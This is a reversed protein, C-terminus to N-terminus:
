IVVQLILFDAIRKSDTSTIMETHNGDNSYGVTLLNTTIGVWEEETTLSM